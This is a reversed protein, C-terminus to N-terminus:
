AAPSTTTRWIKVATQSGGPTNIITWNNAPASCRASRERQRRRSRRRREHQPHLAGAQEVLALKKIEALMRRDAPRVELGGHDLGVTRGARHRQRRRGCDPLRQGARAPSRAGRYRPEEGPQRAAGRSSSVARAASEATGSVGPLDDGARRADAVAPAGHAQGVRLVSRTRAPCITRCRARRRGTIEEVYECPWPWAANDQTAIPFDTTRIMPEALYVPDSHDGRADPNDHRSHLARVADDSRKGPRRQPAVLGAEPADDDGDPPQRGM